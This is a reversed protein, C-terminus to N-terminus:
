QERRSHKSPVKSWFSSAQVYLHDISSTFLLLLAAWLWNLRPILLNLAICALLKGLLGEVM